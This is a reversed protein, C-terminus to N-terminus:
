VKELKRLGPPLLRMEALATLLVSVFSADEYVMKYYQVKMTLASGLVIGGFAIFSGLALTSAGTIAQGITCGLALIGGIGMLVGGVVHNVFDRASAFWEIRFGRSVVAWLLSGLIVGIVSVVGFTLFREDFHNVGYRTVQGIPNIFSFSQVGVDAPREGTEVMVWVDDSTYQTWSNQEGGSDITVLSASVYWAAIVAAGVVFGGLVNDFRGRFDASKLAL